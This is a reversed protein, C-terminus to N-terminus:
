GNGQLILRQREELERKDGERKKQQLLVAPVVDGAAIGRLAWDYEKKWYGSGNHALAQRYHLSVPSGSRLDTYTGNSIVEIQYKTGDSATHIEIQPEEQKTQM